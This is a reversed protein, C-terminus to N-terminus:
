PEVAASRGGVSALKGSLLYEELNVQRTLNWYDVVRWPLNTVVRGRANRYYTDMGKHSWVMRSHREDVADNYTDFVDHRVEVSALQRDRMQALTSTIYRAQCEALYIYSGGHGPNTNPGYMVFFNPFGPVAMGLYARADDDGWIDRLTTGERGTISLPHIMKRAQFGTCMIVVDAPYEEGATTNLTREGFAAVADTVLTVKPNRLAAYWGNDLLMRKGFPPYNPRTRAILDERGALQNELYRTFFQRHRENIANLSRDLHPWNPDIQLSEYNKDNFAWSLRFRYWSHYYPVNEMLWHVNGSIPRFYKDSPAAWQPSRQFITLSAVKDVIAPVIQMSSAGTGVVAVHQGEIGFGEPWRASHFKKGLFDESGPLDPIRPRNLLGVASVLIDTRLTERGGPGQVVVTWACAAEDYEAQVAETNFTISPGLGFERAFDTMYRFVEDRKGFHTEWNRPYYSFSYLYSPVDVGCGPYRNEWWSGGVSQNKEVIRYSIGARQLEVALALGSVGAGIILVEPGTNPAVRPQGDQNDSPGLRKGDMADNHGMDEAVMPAYEAPVDQGMCVSMMQVLRDPEPAPVAPPQGAAWASIAELASRRIAAQTEEDFGGSDHDGLGKTQTPRYPDRLWKQEGTLQHLVMLLTPLNAEHVADHLLESNV